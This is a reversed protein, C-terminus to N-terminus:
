HSAPSSTKPDYVLYTLTAEASWLDGTEEGGPASLRLAALRLGPGAQGDAALAHLFAFLQALTIDRLRVRTPTERYSSDGVPRGPEPEVRDLGGDPMGAAGAAEEIRRSLDTAQVDQTGAVVPRRRLSEIRAASDRCASLDAAADAAAQRSTSLWVWSWAVALVLACAIAAPALRRISQARSLRSPGVLTTQSMGDGPSRIRDSSM